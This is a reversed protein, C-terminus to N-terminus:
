GTIESKELFYTNLEEQTEQIKKFSKQLVPAFKRLSILMLPIVLISISTLKYDLIMLMM